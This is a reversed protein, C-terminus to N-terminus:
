SHVKESARPVIMAGAIYEPRIDAVDVSRTLGTRPRKALFLVEAM